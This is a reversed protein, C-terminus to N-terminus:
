SDEAVEIEKIDIKEPSPIAQTPARYTYVEFEVGGNVRIYFRNLVMYIWWDMGEESVASKIPTWNIQPSSDRTARWMEQFLEILWQRSEGGTEDEWQGFMNKLSIGGEKNNFGFHRLGWGESKIVEVRETLSLLNEDIENVDKISKLEERVDKDIYLSIHGWRDISEEQEPIEKSLDEYLDNSRKDLVAQDVDEQFAPEGPFFRENKHFQTVLKAIDDKTIKVLVHDAFVKPISSGCQIVVIRTNPIDPNTAVGCEYMCWDWDDSASTYILIVLKSDSLAQQLEKVLPEGIGPAQGICSSQFIEDPPINWFKLHNSVIDAIKKDDHRHSIFITKSM